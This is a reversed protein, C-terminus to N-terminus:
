IKNTSLFESVIRSANGIIAPGHGPCLNKYNITHLTGLSKLALDYDYTYAPEPYTLRRQFTWPPVATLLADGSFLTGTETHLYFCSGPTHGPAAIVKLGFLPADQYCDGLNDIAQKPTMHFFMTFFFQNFRGLKYFKGTDVRYKDRAFQADLPTCSLSLNYKKRFFVANGDHDPHTHTLFIKNIILNKGFLNKLQLYISYREGFHGSDILVIGNDTKICYVNSVLTALKYINQAIQVPKFVFWFDFDKKRSGVM